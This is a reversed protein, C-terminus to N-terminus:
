ITAGSMITGDKQIWFFDKMVFDGKCKEHHKTKM